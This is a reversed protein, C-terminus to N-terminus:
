KLFSGTNKIVFLMLPYNEKVSLLIMVFRIFSIGLENSVALMEGGKPLFCEGEWDDDFVYFLVPQQGQFCWGSEMDICYFSVIFLEKNQEVEIVFGAGASM